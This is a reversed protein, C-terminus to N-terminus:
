RDNEEGKAESMQQRSEMQLPVSVRLIDLAPPCRTLPIPQEFKQCAVIIRINLVSHYIKSIRERTSGQGPYLRFTM